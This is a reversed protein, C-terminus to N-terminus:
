KCIINVGAANITAFTANNNTKDYCVTGNAKITFSYNKGGLTTTRVVADAGNATIWITGLGRGLLRSITGSNGGFTGNGSSNRSINVTFSNANIVTSIELFGNIDASSFGKSGVLGSILVMDGAALGHAVLTITIINSGSSVNMPNSPLAVPTTIAEIYANIRTKDVRRLLSEYVPGASVNETGIELSEMTGSLVANISNVLVQLATIAAEASTMRTGLTTLSSNITAIQGSISAIQVNIASVDAQQTAKAAAIDANAGAIQNELINVYVGLQGKLEVRTEITAAQAIKCIKNVLADATDGSVPCTAFDSNVISSLQSQTDILGLIKDELESIKNNNKCEENCEPNNGEEKLNSNYYGCGGTIAISLIALKILIQKM